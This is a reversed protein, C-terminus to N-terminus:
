LGEFHDGLVGKPIELSYLLMHMEEGEYSMEKFGRLQKINTHISECMLNLQIHTKILNNEKM